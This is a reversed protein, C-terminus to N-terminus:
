LALSQRIAVNAPSSLPTQPIGMFADIPEGGEANVNAGNKILVDVLEANGTETLAAWHLPTFQSFRDRAHVDAGQEVLWRAMEIRNAWAAQSLASGFGDPENIRAGHKVLLRALALDGRFAAWM